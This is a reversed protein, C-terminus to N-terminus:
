EIVEFPCLEPFVVDPSHHFIWLHDKNWKVAPVYDQFRSNNFDSASFNERSGACLTWNKPDIHRGTEDFCKLEMLIREKLTIGRFGQNILDTAPMDTPSEEELVFIKTRIAYAVTDVRDDSVDRDYFRAGRHANWLLITFKKAAAAMVEAYTLQPPVIIIRSFNDTVEPIVVNSFDLFLNFNKEYFKEWDKKVVSDPDDKFTDYNLERREGIKKNEEARIVEIDIREIKGSTLMAGVNKDEIKKQDDCGLFLFFAFFILGLIMKKM